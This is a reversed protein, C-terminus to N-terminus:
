HWSEAVQPLYKAVTKSGNAVLLPYRGFIVNQKAYAIHVQKRTDHVSAREVKNIQQYTTGVVIM